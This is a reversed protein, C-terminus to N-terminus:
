PTVNQPTVSARVSLYACLLLSRGCSPTPPVLDEWLVYEERLDGGATGRGAMERGDGM